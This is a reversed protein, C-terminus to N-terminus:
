KIKKIFYNTRMRKKAVVESQNYCNVIDVIKKKVNEVTLDEDKLFMEKFDNILSKAKFLHTM